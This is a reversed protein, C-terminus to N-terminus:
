RRGPPEETKAVIQSARRYDTTALALAKYLREDLKQDSARQTLQAVANEDALFSDVYTNLEALDILRLKQALLNIKREDADAGAEIADAVASDRAKNIWDSVTLVGNNKFTLNLNQIIVEFGFVGIFASWLWAPMGTVPVPTASAMGTSILNGLIVIALYLFFSGRPPLSLGVGSKARLEIFCILLSFATSAIWAELLPTV